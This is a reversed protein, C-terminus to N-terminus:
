HSEENRSFQTLRGHTKKANFTRIRVLYQKASLYMTLIVNEKPRTKLTVLRRCNSFQSPQLQFFRHLLELKSYIHGRM